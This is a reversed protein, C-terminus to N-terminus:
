GGVCRVLYVILLALAGALLVSITALHGHLHHKM